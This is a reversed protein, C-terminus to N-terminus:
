YVQLRPTEKANKTTKKLYDKMFGTIQITKQTTLQYNHITKNNHGGGWKIEDKNTHQTHTGVSALLLCWIEQLKLLLITLQRNVHTNTVLCWDEGLVLARLWQAM